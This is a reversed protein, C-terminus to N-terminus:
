DGNTAEIPLTFYFTSGKGKESNFRLIGNHAEVISRCISLGMGMGNEKTTYFPNFIQGMEAKDIGPGNDKVRVEINQEDILHTQITLLRLKEDPMGSLADISNKVLNILVQEIQVHDISVMPIDQELDFEVKISLQKCADCCLEIADRVIQNIKVSSVHKTNNSIFERMRRIIKGARLAQEEVKELIEHITKLDPKDDEILRLSVQSYAAIATLPQNIEHAIGSALEGMLGLRAVHALEDLHQKEIQEKRKRESVDRILATFYHKNFINYEAISVELPVLTDNKRKGEVDRVNGMMKDNSTQFYNKLFTNHLDRHPSPMIKSINSGVLEDEQFGFINIVSTNISEITGFENITIIGEVAANFITDLKAEKEEIEHKIKKQQNVSLQLDENKSELENYQNFLIKETDIIKNTDELVLLIENKGNESKIEIGQLKITKTTNSDSEIRATCNEIEKSDSLFNLFFEFSIRNDPHILNALKKTKLDAISLGFLRATALNAEKILKKDNLWLLGIPVNEFFSRYSNCSHKM